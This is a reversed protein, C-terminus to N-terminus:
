LEKSTAAKETAGPMVRALMSALADVPRRELFSLTLLLFICGLLVVVRVPPARATSAAERSALRSFPGSAAKLRSLTDTCALLELRMSFSECAVSAMWLSFAEVDELRPQPGCRAEIDAITGEPLARWEELAQTVLASCAEEEEDVASRADSLPALKGCHLGGTGAEVWVDTLVHRSTLKATLLCRGDPLFEIEAIRALLVVSGAATNGRSPPCLYAFTRSASEAARRALLRYRQEFLHLRLIQGPFLPDSFIFLSLQLEKDGTPEGQGMKRAYLEPNCAKALERLIVNECADEPNSLCVARCTPCTKKVRRLSEVLCVRCFTHGCHLSVPQCLLELCVACELLNSRLTVFEPSSPPELAPAFSSSSSSSCASLGQGQGEVVANEQDEM